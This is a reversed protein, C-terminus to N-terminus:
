FSFAEYMSELSKEKVRLRGYEERENSFPNPILNKQSM